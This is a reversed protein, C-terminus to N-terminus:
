NNSNKEGLEEFIKGWERRAQMAESFFDSGTRIETGRYTLHKEGRAGKVIKKRWTQNEIAQFYNHRSSTKQCKDPKTNESSGPNASQPRIELFFFLLLWQKLYTKCKKRREERKLSEM